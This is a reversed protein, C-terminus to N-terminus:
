SASPPPPTPEASPPTPPTPETPQAPEAPPAPQAPPPEAPPPPVPKAPPAPPPRQRSKSQPKAPAPQSKKKKWIFFGAGGGALLLLVILLIWLLAHGKEPKAGVPLGGHVPLSYPNNTADSWIQLVSSYSQKALPTFSVTVTGDNNAPITITTNSAVGFVPPPEPKHKAGAKEHVNTAVPTVFNMNTITLEATGINKITLIANTAKKLTPAIGFDLLNTTSIVPAAGTGTLALVTPSNTADSVIVLNNSYATMEQPAFTVTIVQQSGAPIV